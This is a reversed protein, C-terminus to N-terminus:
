RYYGQRMMQIRNGSDNSKYEFKRDASLSIDLEFFIWMLSDASRSEAFTTYRILDKDDTVTSGSPRCQIGASESADARIFCSMRIMRSGKPVIDSCDVETASAWATPPSSDDIDYSSPKENKPIDKYTGVDLGNSISM